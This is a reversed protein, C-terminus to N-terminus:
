IMVVSIGDDVSFTGILEGADNRILNIKDVSGSKIRKAIDALIHAAETVDTIQNHMANM